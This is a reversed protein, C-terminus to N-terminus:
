GIDRVPNETPVTQERQEPTARKGSGPGDTSGAKASNIPSTDVAGQQSTSPPPSVYGPTMPDGAGELPPVTVAYDLAVLGPLLPLAFDSVGELAPL